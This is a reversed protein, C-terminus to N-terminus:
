AQTLSAFAEQSTLKIDSRRFARFGVQGNDAYRENLRQFGLAGRDGIMVYSFDGFLISVNGTAAAPMGLQSYIPQGLLLDPQGAQLGPQWLYQSDDDKLKRVLALTSDNVIWSAAGRYPTPLAHFVDILEDSTIAAAGDADVNNATGIQATLGTPQGSGTGAAYATEELNSIRRAFVRTLYSEIDFLEDQLLEESVRVMATAKFAELKVSSLTPNEDNYAAAESEWVGSGVATETPITHDGGTQIVTALQRIVQMEDMTEVIRRAFEEGVATAGGDADSIAMARSESAPLDALWDRFEMRHDRETQRRERRPESSSRAEDPAGLMEEISALKARKEQASKIRDIDENLAEIDSDIANYREEQEATLGDDGAADLIERAATVLKMREDLKAQLSM